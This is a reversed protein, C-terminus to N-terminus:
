QDNAKQKREAMVKRYQAVKEPNAARWAKISAYHRERGVTKQWNSIYVKLEDKHEAKYQPQYSRQYAKLKEKNALQYEKICDKCQSCYGFSSRKSKAFQTM